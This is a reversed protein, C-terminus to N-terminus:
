RDRLRFRVPVDLQREVPRGNRLAPQFRWAGVADLAAQDLRPFGSSQALVAEAATGDVRVSVRVVVLGEERARRSAVPYSPPENDAVPVPATVHKAGRGSGDGPGPAEGVGGGAGSSGAVAVGGSGDPAGTDGPAPAGDGPAAAAPSAGVLPEAPALPAPPGQWEPVSPTAAAHPAPAPGGVSVRPLAKRAAEGADALADAALESPTAEGTPAGAGDPEGASGAALRARLDIQLM